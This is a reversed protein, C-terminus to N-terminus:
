YNRWERTAEDYSLGHTWNTPPERSYRRTACYWNTDLRHEHHCWLTEHLDARSENDIWVRVEVHAQSRIARDRPSWYTKSDGRVAQVPASVVATVLPASVLLSFLGRRNM